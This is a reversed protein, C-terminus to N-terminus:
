VSSGPELIPQVSSPVPLFSGECFICYSECGFESKLLSSSKSFSLVLDIVEHLSVVLIKLIYFGFTTFHSVKWYMSGTFGELKFVCYFICVFKMKSSSPGTPFSAVPELVECPSVGLLLLIPLHL